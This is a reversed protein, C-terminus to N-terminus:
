SAFHSTILERTRMAPAYLEPGFGEPDKEYPAGNALLFAVVEYHDSAAAAVLPTPFQGMGDLFAGAEYLLRVVDLNGAACALLLGSRSQKDMRNIAQFYPHSVPDSDEDMAPPPFKKQIGALIMKVLEVDGSAVSFELANVGTDKDFSDPEAGGVALCVEVADKAEAGLSLSILLVANAVVQSIQRTEFLTKLIAAHGGAAALVVPPAKVGPSVASICAGARLLLPVVGSSGEQAASALPTAGQRNPRDVSARHSLLLGAIEVADNQACVFLATHGSNNQADVDTAPSSLLAKVAEVHNRAAAILLPPVGDCGKRNPDAGAELLVRIVESHGNQAALWLPSCGSSPMGLDVVAGLRLLMRVMAAHGRAAASLLATWEQEDAANVYTPRDPPLLSRVTAVDGIYAATVLESIIHQPTPVEM